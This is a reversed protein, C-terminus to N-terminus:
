NLVLFLCHNAITLWMGGCRELEIYGGNVLIFAEARPRFSKHTKIYSADMAEWVEVM